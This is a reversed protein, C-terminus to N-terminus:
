ARNFFPLSSFKALLQTRLEPTLLLLWAATIGVALAGASALAPTPSLPQAAIWAPGTLFAVTVITTATLVLRLFGTDGGVFPAAARVPLVATVAVHALLSVALIGTIGFWRSAPIALVVFVCAEVFYVSRVPRMKAVIGFVGVLCRTGATVVLLLGLLLDAGPDWYIKGSTWFSVMASNGCVLLLAAAAALFTSLALIDRFRGRFLQEEGRVYIETLTPAASEIIRGSFQQGMAFLKTGVAFTAAAELGAFRSLIMIQSANVVQSGLTMLMVDKGFLFVRHLLAGDVKGTDWRAPYYGKNRCVFFSVLPCVLLAPVGALALSYIGWGAAFGMWLFLLGSLLTAISLLYHVDLRQYAWLPAGAARVALTLGSVLSLIILINRFAPALDEPIGFLASAFFSTSIGVAAVLLGQLTFVICGAKFVSAYAPAAPNDKSDALFRSIASTVGLDLLMFYSSIQAALAWLGFEQKGLYLLALPISVVTYLINAGILAYGMGTNLTFQRIRSV